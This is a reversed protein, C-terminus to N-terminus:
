TMRVDAEGVVWSFVCASKKKWISNQFDKFNSNRCYHLVGQGQKKETGERPKTSVPFDTMSWKNIGGEDQREERATNIWSKKGRCIKPEHVWLNQQNAVQVRVRLRFSDLNEMSM